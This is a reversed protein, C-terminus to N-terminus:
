KTLKGTWYGIPQGTVPSTVVRRPDVPLAQGKSLAVDAPNM